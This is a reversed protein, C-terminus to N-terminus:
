GLVRKNAEGPTERVYRPIAYGPLHARLQEILEVGTSEPVEFHAAGAVRDLQHLYYPMVRLDVLREYLRALVDLRDNVGRLLVSQSLVPVGADVLRGLASAVQDDIEAPHNVHVVVIPTLRTGRLWALLEETVRQPIVIPVRTHVRLRRVHPIEALRQALQALLGDDLTLPDGGSLIVERISPDAAIEDLAPEWRNPPKPLSPYPFHRRFCFRCHVACDPTAVMLARGRYKRLLGCTRAIHAEGVPDTTFGAPQDREEERPLIQLLLPDHPDGRRIRALYTRPVLLPFGREVQGAAVADPPAVGVLRCLEAADTVPDALIAHWEPRGAGPSSRSTPNARSALTSM